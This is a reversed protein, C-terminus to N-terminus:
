NYRFTLIKFKQEPFLRIFNIVTKWTRSNDEMIKCYIKYVDIPYTIIM